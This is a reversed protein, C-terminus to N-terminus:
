KWKLAATLTASVRSGPSSTSLGRPPTEAVCLERPGLNVEVRDIDFFVSGIGSPRPIYVGDLHTAAAPDGLETNNSSGIGRIWVEVNGQNSAIEIGPATEGIDTLDQLGQRKLDEGSIAIATGALSQLSQSRREVTVVIEELVGRRSSSEENAEQEQALAPLAILANLMLAAGIQMRREAGVSFLSRRAQFWVHLFNLLRHNM